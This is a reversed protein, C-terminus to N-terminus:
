SYDAFPDLSGKERGIMEQWRSLVVGLRRRAFSRAVREMERRGFEMGHLVHLGGDELM